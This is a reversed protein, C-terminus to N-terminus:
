KGTIKKITKKNLEVKYRNRLQKLWENELEQQYDTAVQGKVDAAEAPQDLIVGNYAFFYPWYQTGKAEPGDFVLYDIIANDGKPALVREVKVKGGFQKRLDKVLADHSITKGDVYARVLAGVSDNVAFIIDGRYRPRDWKYNDRHAQFYEELGEKDKTAKEWVNRNSIEFLLMGDRYENILNRYEPHINPLDDIAALKTAENIQLNLASNFRDFNQSANGNRMFTTHLAVDKVTVQHTGVTAIVAKNAQLARIFTTDAASNVDFKARVEALVKDNIKAKYAARLEEMKAQQPMTSRSDRSIAEAISPRVDEYTPIARQDEKMIIHYGFPSEVPESIQGKALEFAATEFQPVMQGTGFWGLSGGEKASGPDESYERALNAFDAGAMLLSYISDAKAKKAAKATEDLGRTGILIHSAKVQGRAPRESDVRVIFFGFPFEQVESVVGIPQAYVAQEFPYPLRNVPMYGMHGGNKDVSYKDAMEGFDAGALIASRVSDLQAKVAAREEASRGGFMMIYNVDRETRMHDYIENILSDEVSQKSLYPKALEERYRDFEMRFQATTDIGAAEADAVKMKYVAFMDVYDEIPTPTAQQSNNKNYLYNFEDLTIEKGNVKMVTPSSTKANNKATMSGVSVAAVAMLTFAPLLIKKM